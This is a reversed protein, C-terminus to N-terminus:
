FMVHIYDRVGTGDKTPYDNGFVTLKDRRGVAVQAVYPMLNNPIGNPDEGIRGSPHSGVPNFYRLTVVSWPEEESTELDKSRKFDKLIEEIMYKSRGYANTIGVGTRTDERIPVAAEGYVTASSSFVISKCAYKDMLNLLNITSDLNNTYYLLPKRVSEGVAKLGAFHICANFRPSSQFVSELAAADTMDVKHFKIREESCGTIEVARKLGEPSSNCLNDVVTVDYGAEILCVITHVGIYGAGGTVLINKKEAVVFLWHM